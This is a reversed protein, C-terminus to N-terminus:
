GSGWSRPGPFSRHAIFVRHLLMLIVAAVATHRHWLAVRDLGGFAREIVGLLTALVLSCSFLLVAEVGFFEGLYRGSPEHDPRALISLAVSGVVLAALVGIGRSPRVLPPSTPTM